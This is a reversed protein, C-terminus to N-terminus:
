RQTIGLSIDEHACKEELDSVLNKEPSHFFIMPLQTMKVQEELLNTVHTQIGVM